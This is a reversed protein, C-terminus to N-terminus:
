SITVLVFTHLICLCSSAFMFMCRCRCVCVCVSLCVCLCLFVSLCLSLCVFVCVCMCVCLSLSLCVCVCVCVCVRLCLCLCIQTPFVLGVGECLEECTPFRVALKVLATIVYHKTVASFSQSRIINTLMDVVFEESIQIRSHSFLSHIVLHSLTDHSLPPSGSCLLASGAEGICLCVVWM